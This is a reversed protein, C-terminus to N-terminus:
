AAAIDIAILFCSPAAAVFDDCKYSQSAPRRRAPLLQRLRHRMQCCVPLHAGKAEDFGAMPEGIEVVAVSKIRLITARCVLVCM